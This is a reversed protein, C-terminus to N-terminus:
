IYQKIDAVKNNSLKLKLKVLGLAKIEDASYKKDRLRDSVDHYASVRKFEGKPNFSLVYNFDLTFKDPTKKSYADHLDINLSIYTGDPRKMFYDNSDKNEFWGNRDKKVEPKPTAKAEVFEVPTAANKSKAFRDLLDAYNSVPSDSVCMALNAASGLTIFEIDGGNALRETKEEELEKLYNNYDEEDDFDEISDIYENDLNPNLDAFIHKKSSVWTTESSSYKETFWDFRGLYVLDKQKKTKYSAGPILSKTDVKGSQLDTYEKSKTYDESSTPILVLNTGNWGYVFTGELGKGKASTCEQLITLVNPIDIEFEFGRPDFVRVKEIRVDNHYGYSNKVGGVNRNLVFGETPVNEFEDVGMKKDVWGNWSAEKRLKNKEDYYIVYALKKSYTDLRKQYGVKLKSPIYIQNEM